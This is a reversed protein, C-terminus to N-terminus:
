FVIMRKFYYHKYGGAGTTVFNCIELTLVLAVLLRFKTWYLLGIKLEQTKRMQM